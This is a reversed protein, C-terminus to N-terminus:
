PIDKWKNTDEEIEKMLLKYNEIYLDKMAKILNIGLFKIRKSTIIFSTTKKIGRESLKSNTYLFAVFKRTNIKYRAVKDGPNM